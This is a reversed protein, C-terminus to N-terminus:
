VSTNRSLRSGQIHRPCAPCAETSRAGSFPSPIQEMKSEPPCPEVPRGPSFLVVAACFVGTNAPNASCPHPCVRACM